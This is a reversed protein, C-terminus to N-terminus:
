LRRGKIRQDWTEPQQQGVQLAQISTNKDIEEQLEDSISDSSTVYEIEQFTLNLTSHVPSGDQHFSIVSDPDHNVGFSTIVSKKIKFLYEDDGKNGVKFKIVWHRPSSFFPAILRGSKQGTSSVKGPTSGERSEKLINKVTDAEPKNKPFFQFVFSHTRFAGPGRYLLAVHNNRALGFGASSFNKAIDSKTVAGAVLDGTTSMAKQAVSLAADFNDVAGRGRVKEFADAYTSANTLASLTRGGSSVSNAITEGGAFDEYNQSITTQLSNPPIYLAISGIRTGQSHIANKSEYSSFLM